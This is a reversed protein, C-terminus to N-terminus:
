LNTKPINWDLANKKVEYIIGAIMLALFFMVVAIISINAAVFDSYIIAFPIMFLVEIDFVVFLLAVVYFKVGMNMHAKGFTPMGCEYPSNNIANKKARQGFICSAAIIGLGMAVSLVIQLFVPLYAEFQM